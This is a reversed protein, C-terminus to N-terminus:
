TESGALAVAAALVACAEPALVEDFVGEILLPAARERRLGDRRALDLDSVAQSWDALDHALRRGLTHLREVDALAEVAGVCHDNACRRVFGAAAQDFARLAAGRPDTESM